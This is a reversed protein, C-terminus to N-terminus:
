RCVLVKATPGGPEIRVTLGPLQAVFLHATAVDYRVRPSWSDGDRVSIDARDGSLVITDGKQPSLEVGSTATCDKPTYPFVAQQLGLRLPIQSTVGDSVSGPESLRGAEKQDLLWGITVDFSVLPDPRVAPPVERALPSYPLSLMLQRQATFTAADADSRFLGINGPVGILLVGLAVPAAPRWRHGVSEIAVGLAPLIMAATLYLYRSQGAYAAGFQWRGWGSISLLVVSGALLGLPGAARRAFRGVGAETAGLALGGILVAALLLGVVPHQGLARFTGGVGHAVFAVIQGAIHPLGRNTPNSGTGPKEAVFWVLYLAALPATQALAVRWGRRLLAAMGVVVVMTVGIGSCLLAGVGAGLALWDRRGWGGDHDVLLLQTLGLVLSGVFGM